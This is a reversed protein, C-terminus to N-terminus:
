FRFGFSMGGLFIVSEFEKGVVDYVNILPTFGIRFLFNGEPKQYRYGIVGTLFVATGPNSEGSANFNLITSGIALEFLDQSRGVLKGVTLPIAIAEPYFSVGGRIVMKDLFQREYNLSYLGGNGLFEIFVANKRTQEQSYSVSFTLLFVVIFVLKKM